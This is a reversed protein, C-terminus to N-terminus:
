WQRRSWGGPLASAGRPDCGAVWITGAQNNSSQDPFVWNYREHDLRDWLNTQDTGAGLAVPCQSKNRARYKYLNDVWANAISTDFSDDAFSGYRHGYTRFVYSVGHYGDVQHLRSFTDLWEEWVNHNMSHCSSLHLFELDEDGLKMHGQYAGCNGEGPENRRVSAVWRGDPDNKGGHLGVLLADPEDNRDSAFDNGWSVLDPDTFDSDVINGNHYFGDKLWSGRGHDETLNYYWNNVMNNWGRLSM